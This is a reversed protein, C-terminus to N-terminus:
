QCVVHFINSHFSFYSVVDIIQQLVLGFTVNIAEAENEVPRELKNYNNEVFLYHLLHRGNQGLLVEVFCSYLKM